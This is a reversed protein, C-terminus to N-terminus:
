LKFARRPEICVSMRICIVLNLVDRGPSLSQHVHQYAMLQNITHRSDYLELHQSSMNRQLQNIEAILNLLQKWEQPAEVPHSRM